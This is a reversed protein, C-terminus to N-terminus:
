DLERLDTCDVQALLADVRGRGPIELTPAIKSLPLLVFAREHLAPHPVKLGPVDISSEGYVLLDLDLTRPGWRDDANRVRGFRQEIALLREILENAVLRTQLEIVGNTFDPQDARGWPPSRYWPSQQRVSTQPLSDIAMVAEALTEEVEGLNAGLGVFARVSPFM